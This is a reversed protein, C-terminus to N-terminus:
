AAAERSFEANTVFSPLAALVADTRERTTASARTRNAAAELWTAELAGELTRAAGREGLGEGLALAAALLMGAPDAMGHGAEDDDVRDEPFFVSPGAAALRAFAVVRGREGFGAVHALADALSRDGLVVDFREPQTAVRELAQVRTLQELEVGASRYAARTVLSRFRRDAAVAAVRGHRTCALEFAREATWEDTAEGLPSVVCVDARGPVVVRVLGARLDLDAEVGALAPDAGAVLVADAERYAARTATPLPHGMRM